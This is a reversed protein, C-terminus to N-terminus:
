KYSEEIDASLCTGIRGVIIEQNELVKQHIERRVEAELLKIPHGPGGVWDALQIETLEACVTGNVEIILHGGSFYFRDRSSGNTFVGSHTFELEYTVATSWDPKLGTWESVAEWLSSDGIDIIRFTEQGEVNGTGAAGAGGASSPAFSSQHCSFPLVLILIILATGIMWYLIGLTRRISRSSWRHFRREIIGEASQIVVKRRKSLWTLISIIAWIIGLIVNPTDM